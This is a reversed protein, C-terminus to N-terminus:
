DKYGLFLNCISLYTAAFRNGYSYKTPEKSLFYSNLKPELMEDLLQHVHGFKIKFKM